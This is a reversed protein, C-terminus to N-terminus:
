VGLAKPSQNGKAQITPADVPSITYLDLRAAAYLSTSVRFFYRAEDEGLFLGTHTAHQWRQSVYSTLSGGPAYEMVLALHKETLIAEKANVISIHGEGLQAQIQLHKANLVDQREQM